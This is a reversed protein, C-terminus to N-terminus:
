FILLALVIIVPILLCGFLKGCCRSSLDSLRPLRRNPDPLAARFAPVELDFMYGGIQHSVALSRNFHREAC